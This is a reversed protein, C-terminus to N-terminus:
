IDPEHYELSQNKSEALEHILTSKHARLYNHAKYAIGVNRYKSLIIYTKSKVGDVPVEWGDVRWESRAKRAYYWQPAIQISTGPSLLTFRLKHHRHWSMSIRKELVSPLPTLSEEKIQHPTYDRPVVGANGPPGVRLEPKQNAEGNHPTRPANNPLPVQPLALIAQIANRCQTNHIGFADFRILYHQIILNRKELWTVDGTDHYTRLLDNCYGILYRTHRSVM